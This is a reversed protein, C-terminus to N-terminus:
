VKLFRRNILALFRLTIESEPNPAVHQSIIDLADNLSGASNVATIVENYFNQDNRFLEKQFMFRDNINIAKKLDRIPQGGLREGLSGQSAAELLDSKRMGTEISEGLIVKAKRRLTEEQQFTKLPEENEPQVLIPAEAIPEVSITKEEFVTEVVETFTVVEETEQVPEEMSAVIPSEEQEVAVDDIKAVEVVVPESQVVASGDTLLEIGQLLEAAKSKALRLIPAPMQTIEVMGEFLLQLENIEKHVQKLVGNKDM